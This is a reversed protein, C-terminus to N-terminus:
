FFLTIGGQLFFPTGPTFHIEEVPEDEFSLRSETNFQAEKWKEDLLNQASIRLELNKWRYRAVADLLIYGDAVVSNDENAARDGLWRYRLSGSFGSPHEVSLGGTSSFTVALPIYDESEPSDLSRPNAFSLDSDIFLWPLAQYRLSLDIGQRRTKGSPEVIGADGVYVFEQDLDLWWLTAIFSISPAPKIIAGLDAGYARPLIEEAEQEIVVRADNSHFGTGAKLFLGISNNVTYDIRVKPSFIGTSEKQRSYVPALKDTYQFIFHDYRAGATLIWDNSVKWQEEAYLGINMEEVDGYALDELVESRNRTRSLRIDNIDDYRLQLGGRFHLDPNGFQGSNEFSGNYGYINRSESQTIQDGNVPDELFFTFNSVLNFDYKSFYVQQSVLANNELRKTFMANVNQRSTEGGETDDIAGFWGILGSEVARDPIQGSADWNSSFSSVNLTFIADDSFNRHYKGFLNVRTFNQSSEFYGDTSLFEAAVYASQRDDTSPPPLLSVAALTRFTGFQGGELKVLSEPLVDRTNFRAFGATTFDGYGSYYPGKNFDVSEILEPIIFHLDSYGQGHAHSVMNVPMGDVSLNIDTGHDIDFGRLFIQEAKGGGAHQAIFLGPIQRLVEQSNQLPRLAIDLNSIHNIYDMEGGSIVVDALQVPAEQMPVSLRTTENDRIEVQREVSLYGVYTITITYNGAALEVSFKGLANTSTILEDGIRVTASELPIRNSDTVTGELTGNHAFASLILLQLAITLFIKM